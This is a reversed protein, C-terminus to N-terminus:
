RLCQECFITLKRGPKPGAGVGPSRRGPLSRRRAAATARFPTPDTPLAPRGGGGDDAFAFKSPNSGSIPTRFRPVVHEDEEDGPPSGPYFHGTHRGEASNYMRNVLGPREPSFVDDSSSYGVGGSELGQLQHKLAGLLM